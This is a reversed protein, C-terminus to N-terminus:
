GKVVNGVVQMTELTPSAKGGRTEITVAFTQAGSPIEKMKLLGAIVGFWYTPARGIRCVLDGPEAEGVVVAAEARRREAPTLADLWPISALEEGSAPRVRDRISSTGSDTGVRM